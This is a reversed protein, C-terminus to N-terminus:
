RLVLSDVGGKIKRDRTGFVMPPLTPKYVPLSEGFQRFFEHDIYFSQRDTLTRFPVEREINTTLPSYRRDGKNSGPFVAAPIVERPQATINNFTIRGMERDCCIDRLAMGSDAELAEYSKQSLRGNTAWSMHLVMGAARR